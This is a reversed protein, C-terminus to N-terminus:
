TLFFSFAKSHSQPTASLSSFQIQNLCINEVAHRGALFVALDEARGM